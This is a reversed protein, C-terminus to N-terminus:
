FLSLFRCIRKKGKKLFLGLFVRKLDRAKQPDSGFSRRQFLTNQGFYVLFIHRWFHNHGDQNMITGRVLPTDASALVAHISELLPVKDALVSLGM